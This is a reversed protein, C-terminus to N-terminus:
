YKIFMGLAVNKPRTETGGVETMESNSAYDTGGGPAIVIDLNGGGGGTDTVVQSRPTSAYDTFYHRHVAFLDGQYSGFVRGADTSGAADFGRVFRGALDPLNFTTSGDGIGFVTSIAKFLKPYQLRSVEAGNCPLYGGLPIRNAAFTEVTGARRVECYYPERYPFTEVSTISGGSKVVRGVIVIREENWGGSPFNFHSVGTAPNYWLGLQSVPAPIPYPTAYFYSEDVVALEPSGGVPFKVIALYIRNASPMAFDLDATLKVTEAIEGFEDYGSSVTAIFPYSPTANLRLTTSAPASLLNLDGTSADFRGTLVVNRVSQSAHGRQITFQDKLWETRNLLQQSPVNATGGAGGEVYDTTEIQYVDDFSSVPTLNAM